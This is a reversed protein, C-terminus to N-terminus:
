PLSWKQNAGDNCRSVKLQTGSRTSYAPDDLCGGVKLVYEGDSAHRWTQAASGTCTELAIRGSRDDMCMTRHKLEGGTFSWRQSADGACKWVQVRNGPASSNGNDDACMGKYGRIEPPASPATRSSSLTIHLSGSGSLQADASVICSDPHSYPHGIVRTFPTTESFSGSDSGAGTGYSCTDTWYGTVKQGPSSTVTVALIVPENFTTAADCIAYDGEASCSNGTGASAAGASVTLAGAAFLLGTFATTVAHSFRM